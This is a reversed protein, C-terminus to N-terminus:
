VYRGATRFENNVLKAVERGLIDYIVLQVKGDKPLAFQIKTTPNFPNPFNQSLEFETPIINQQEIINDGPENNFVKTIDSSVNQIHEQINEPQRKQITAQLNKIAKLERKANRDGKASREELTNVKDITKKRENEFTTVVNQKVVQKQEKSLNSRDKVDKPDDEFSKLEYLKEISEKNYMSSQYNIISGANRNGGSSGGNLLLVTASYDWSAILADYTNPYNNMIDEFGAMASSYDGLASKCKQIFYFAKKVLEPKDGNNLIVGELFSKLPSMRDGASDLSLSALYLKHVADPAYESEPENSLIDEAIEAVRTYNRLRMEVFMSDYMSNVGSDLLFLTDNYEDTVPVLIFNETQGESKSSMGSGQGQGCNYNFDFSVASGGSGWTVSHIAGVTSGYKYCNNGAPYSGDSSGPFYGYMHKGSTYNSPILFTNMGGDIYFLGDNVELNHATVSSNNITNWGGTITKGPSTMNLTSSSMQVSSGTVSSTITNNYLDGSSSLAVIGQQYNTIDNNKIVAGAINNVLMAQSISSSSVTFNNDDIVVPVSMSSSADVYIVPSNNSNMSFNNGNILVNVGSASTYYARVGGTNYGTFTNESISVKSCNIIDFAYYTTPHDIDEIDTVIVNDIKVTDCNQLVIGKWKDSGNGQLLIDEETDGPQYCAFFNGGEVYIRASDVFNVTSGLKIRLDHGDTYVNDTIIVNEDIVEDAVLIGGVFIVPSLRFLKGEGPKFWGVTGDTTGLDIAGTYNKDFTVSENSHVDTITWNNAGALDSPDFKIKLVRVDGKQVSSEVYEPECRRNVVTFYNANDGSTIPEFFGMEWFREEECDTYTTPADEVCSNAGSIYPAISVIDSIFYHNAGQKHVSVGDYWDIRDLSSKWNLLKANLDKVYQYKPQGYDNTYRPSNSNLDALGYHYTYSTANQDIEMIPPRSYSSDSDFEFGWSDYIFWCLGDAGHSLAIVAQAEIEENLPERMSLHSYNGNPLEEMWSHLQPQAIFKATPNYQDALDRGKRVQYIFSGRPEPLDPAFHFDADATRGTEESKDGFCAYQLYENYESYPRGWITSPVKPNITGHQNLSEPYLDWKNIEHADVTFVQPEIRDLLLEFSLPYEQRIGHMNFHNTVAVSIRVDNNNNYVKAKNFVYEICPINSVAIEDVFFFYNNSNNAFNEVEQQIKFDHIGSFIQNARDNEVTLKDFWVDANGPWYIRFDIECPKTVKGNQNDDYVSKWGENLGSAKDGSIQLDVSPDFTFDYIDIYSGDYNYEDLVPDYHAFNRAKISIEEMVNGDFNRIEIKVIEMGPNNDVVTSDIKMMPKLIWTGADDWQWAFLDSHQMNEYIDRCIYGASTSSQGPPPANTAHRVTRGNDVEYLGTMTKYVFGKNVTIQNNSSAIEYEVRQGSLCLDAIKARNYVGKLGANHVDSIMDEVNTIQTGTLTAAFTGYPDGPFGFHYVQTSNFNFDNIQSLRNLFYLSPDNPDYGKNFIINVFEDKFSPTYSQVQGPKHSLSTQNSVEEEGTISGMVAFYIFPLLLVLM